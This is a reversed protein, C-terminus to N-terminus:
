PEGGAIAQCKYDFPVLGDDARRTRGGAHKLFVFASQSSKGTPRFPDISPQAIETVVISAASSVEERDERIQKAFKATYLEAKEM